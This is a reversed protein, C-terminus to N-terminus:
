ATDLAAAVAPLDDPRILLDIARTSRMAGEDITAVWSAVANGGVVAYAVPADNLVATARLLRERVKVVARKMRDLIEWATTVTSIMTKPTLVIAQFQGSTM